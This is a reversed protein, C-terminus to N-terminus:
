VRHQSEAIMGEVVSASPSTQVMREEM